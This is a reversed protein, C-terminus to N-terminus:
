PMLEWLWMGTFIYIVIVAAVFGFVAGIMAGALSGVIKVVVSEQQDRALRALREM